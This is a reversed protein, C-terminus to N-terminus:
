WQHGPLILTLKRAILVVSLPRDYHDFLLSSSPVADPRPTRPEARAQALGIWMSSLASCPLLQVCSRHPCAQTQWPLQRCRSPGYCRPSMAQHLLWYRAINELQYPAAQQPMSSRGRKLSMLDNGLHASLTRRVLSAIEQWSRQSNYATSSIRALSLVV